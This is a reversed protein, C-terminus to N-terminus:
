MTGPLCLNNRVNLSYEEHLTPIVELRSVTNNILLDLQSGIGGEFVSHM